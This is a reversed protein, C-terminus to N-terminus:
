RRALRYLRWLVFLFLIAFAPYFVGINHLLYSLASCIYLVATVAILWLTNKWSSPKASADQLSKTSWATGDALKKAGTTRAKDISAFVPATYKGVQPTYKLVYQQLPESSEILTLTSTASSTAQLSDNPASAPSNTVSAPSPKPNIYFIANQSEVVTGDAIVLKATVDHQGAKPTWTVSVTDAVGAKLTVLTQGIPGSADSFKLTGSFNNPSVNEVVAYIFVTEGETVTSQSLFMSQKAFGAAYAFFPVFLFLAVISSGVRMYRNYVVILAVIKIHAAHPLLYLVIYRWCFFIRIAGM